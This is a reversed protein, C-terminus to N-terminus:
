DMLRFVPHLENDQHSQKKCIGYFYNLIADPSNAFSPDKMKADFEAKIAPNEALMERGKFEMYAPNVWYENDSQVHVNFFGWYTLSGPADPEFMYVALKANPQDMGVVISGKPCLITEDQTTYTASVVPVRGESQRTSFRGGTYRYTEVDLEQAEDLVTYKLAHLDLLEILYSYQPLIVYAKPIKVAMTVKQTKYLPVNYTMPKDYNHKVWKGGSLDSIITDRQWGLYDVYTVESKDIEFKLPFPENRFSPSATFADADNIAKVLEAKHDKLIYASQRIAELTAMVREKYPKYIHTELLLGLRNRYAVYSQSYRPDFVDLSAGLEPAYTREYECYPFMPFDAATMRENLEKEYVNVSFSHLPESIAKGHNEIDYTMVYQFDAGNTVHCDIFLEPDWRNYLNMWAKLEPTDCKLYDRNLNLLQATNRTGLEEPGNQNIRNTARFDEHGDVNFIPILVFTIDDLLDANEGKLIMDRFFIMNADKGDPEGSHICCQVLVVLRGKKRVDKPDAYGNKDFIVVNLDRGQPSVGFKAFNVMPSFEAMRKFYEMTEDYRPTKRFDTSEALTVWEELNM